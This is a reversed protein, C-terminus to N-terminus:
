TYVKLSKYNNIALVGVNEQKAKELLKLLKEKTEACHCHLGVNNARYKKNVVNKIYGCIKRTIKYLNYSSIVLLFHQIAHLVVVTIM